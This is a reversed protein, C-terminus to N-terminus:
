GRLLELLGTVIGGLVSACLLVVVATSFQTLTGGNFLAIAVVAAVAQVLLLLSLIVRLVKM